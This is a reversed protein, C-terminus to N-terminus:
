KETNKEHIKLLTEKIVEAAQLCLEKTQFCNGADVIVIDEVDDDFTTSYVDLAEDFYWYTEGEKPTWRKPKREEKWEMWATYADLPYKEYLARSPYFLASGSPYTRVSKGIYVINGRGNPNVFSITNDDVEAIVDAGKEINFIEIGECGKLLECLNLEKEEMPYNQCPTDACQAANAGCKECRNKEEMTEKPKYGCEWGKGMCNDCTRGDTYPCEEIPEKNEETHPELYEERFNISYEKFSYIIIGCPSIEVSQITAIKGDRLNDYPKCAFIVRDGVKFKPKPNLMTEPMQIPNDIDEKIIDVIEKAKEEIPKDPLCKGGFLNELVLKQSRADQKEYADRPNSCPANIQESAKKYYDQVKKREVMLIEEPETDSTLNHVGFMTEFAHRKGYHFKYERDALRYTERAAMRAEKPLCAWALDQQEKNM